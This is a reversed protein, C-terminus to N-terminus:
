VSVEKTLLQQKNKKHLGMSSDTFLPPIDYRLNPSPALGMAHQALAPGTVTTTTNEYSGHCGYDILAHDALKVPSAEGFSLSCKGDNCKDSNQQVMSVTM